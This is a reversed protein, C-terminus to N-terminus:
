SFLPPNDAKSYILYVFQISVIVINVVLSAFLVIRRCEWVAYARLILLVLSGYNVDHIEHYYEVYVVNEGEAIMFQVIDIDALLRPDRINCLICTRFTSAAITLGYKCLQTFKLKSIERLMEM